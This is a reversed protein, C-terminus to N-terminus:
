GSLGRDDRRAAGELWERLGTAGRHALKRAAADHARRAAGELSDGGVLRAFFTAGWVDGCGTPDGSEPRPVPYLAGRVSRGGERTGRPRREATASESIWVGEPGLTVAVRAPGERLVRAAGEPLPDGPALLRLEAGNLQVSDFCAVWRQWEPLPRPPRAGDVASGLFLSHLDAYLPIELAASLREATAIEMEAGSIFNLYLADLGDLRPALVEWRWPPVGGTLHEEREAQDLYRLEVRNNPEPVPHLGGLSRVGPLSRTFARIQSALDAGVQSIPVLEWGAPLATSAAALSYAIGGWSRHPEGRERDAPTWITDRVFTGLVGLRKM